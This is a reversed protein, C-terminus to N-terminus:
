KIYRMYTLFFVLFNDYTVFIDGKVNLLFNVGKIKNNKNRHVRERKSGQITYDAIYNIYEERYQRKNIMLTTSLHVLKYDPFYGFLMLLINNLKKNADKTSECNTIKIRTVNKLLFVYIHDKPYRASLHKSKNKYRIKFGPIKSINDYKLNNIPIYTEYTKNLVKFKDIFEDENINKIYIYSLNYNLKNTLHFNLLSAIHLHKIIESIVDPNNM